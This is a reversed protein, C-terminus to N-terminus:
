IAAGGCGSRIFANSVFSAYVLNGSSYALRVQNFLLQCALSGSVLRFATPRVPAWSTTGANANAAPAAGALAATVAVL